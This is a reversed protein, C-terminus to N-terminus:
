FKLDLVTEVLVDPEYVALRDRNLFGSCVGATRIGLLQNYCLALISILPQDITDM